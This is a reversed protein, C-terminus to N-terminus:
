AWTAYLKGKGKSGCKGKEWETNCVKQHVSSELLIATILALIQRCKNFPHADKTHKQKHRAYYGPHYFVQIFAALQSTWTKKRNRAWLTHTIKLSILILNQHVATTVQTFHASTGNIRACMNGYLM